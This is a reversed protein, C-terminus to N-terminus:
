AVSGQGSSQAEAARSAQPQGDDRASQPQLPIRRLGYTQVQGLFGQESYMFAWRDGCVAWVKQYAQQFDSAEVVSYCHRQRSDFGYTVFFQSM